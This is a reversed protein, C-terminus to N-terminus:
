HKPFYKIKLHLLHIALFHKLQQVSLQKFKEVSIKPNLKARKTLPLIQMFASWNKKIFETTFM